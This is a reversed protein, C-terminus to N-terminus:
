KGTGRINHLLHNWSNYIFRCGQILSIASFLQLQAKIIYLKIDFREVLKLEKLFFNFRFGLLIINPNSNNVKM